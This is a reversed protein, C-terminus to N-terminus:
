DTLAGDPGGLPLLQVLGVALLGLLPLQLLNRSVRLVGTRCADVMWLAFVIGASLQFTALSWAHVPGFALTTTVVALCLMLIIFRSWITRPVEAALAPASAEPAGAPQAVLDARMRGVPQANSTSTTMGSKETSPASGRAARCARSGSSCARPRRGRPLTSRSRSGTARGM